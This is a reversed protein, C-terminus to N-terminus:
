DQQGRDHIELHLRRPKLRTLVDIFAFKTVPKLIYGDAGIEKATEQAVPSRDNSLVVLHTKDLDKRTTRITRILDYGSMGPLDLDILMLGPTPLVGSASRVLFEEGRSLYTIPNKDFITEVQQRVAQRDEPNDEVCVISIRTM